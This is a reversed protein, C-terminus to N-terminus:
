FYQRRYDRGNSRDRFPLFVGGAYDDLWFLTLNCTTGGLELHVLGLPHASVAADGSMPLAIPRPPAPEVTAVLRWSSDYPFAGLETTARRSATV